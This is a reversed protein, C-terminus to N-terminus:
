LLSNQGLGFDRDIIEYNKFYKRFNKLFLAEGQFLILVM